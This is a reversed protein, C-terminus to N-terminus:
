LKLEENLEFIIVRIRLKMIEFIIIRM